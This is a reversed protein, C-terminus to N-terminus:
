IVEDVIGVLCEEHFVALCVSGDHLVSQFHKQQLGECTPLEPVIVSLSQYHTIDICNHVITIHHAADTRSLFVHVVGDFVDVFADERLGEAFDHRIYEPAVRVVAVDHMGVAGARLRRQGVHVPFLGTIQAYPFADRLVGDDHVGVVQEAHTGHVVDEHRRGDAAVLHEYGALDDRGDDVSCVFQQRM